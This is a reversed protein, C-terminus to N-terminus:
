YDGATELLREALEDLNASPAMGFAEGLVEAVDGLGQRLGLDDQSEIKTILASAMREDADVDAVLYTASVPHTGDYPRMEAQAIEHPSWTLEVFVEHTAWSTSVAVGMAGIGAVLVRPGTAQRVEEIIAERKGGSVAGHIPGFVKIGAGALKAALTEVVEVHWAWLVCSYGDAIIRKALELGAATKEKAYLKRLRALDGVMTKAGGTEFRIRAALEEVEDKVKQPLAVVEMTRQIPPLDKAIDIWRRRFMVADLRAHLEDMNSAGDATWGHAGPRASCYRGAFGWYDGWAAPNLLDLTNWMNSVKNTLPTGTLGVTQFAVTNLNRIREATLNKRNQMGASHIEDIALMGVHPLQTCLQWWTPAVATTAFLVHPEYKLVLDPNFTRGELALFSPRAYAGTLVRDYAGVRTCVPCRWDDGEEEAMVVNVCTGFRRAAWEHWVARAALPGYVILPAYTKSPEYAYMTSPTKGTRMEMALLTGRRNRIFNVADMQHPKLVHHERVFPYDVPAELGLVPFHSRHIKYPWPARKSRDFPLERVGPVDRPAFRFRDYIPKWTDVTYWDAVDAPTLVVRTSM